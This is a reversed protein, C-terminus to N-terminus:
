NVTVSLKISWLATQVISQSHELKRAAQIEKHIGYHRNSGFRQFIDAGSNETFIGFGSIVKKSPVL